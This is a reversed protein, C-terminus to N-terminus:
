ESFTVRRPPGRRLQPVAVVHHLFYRMVEVLEAGLIQAWKLLDAPVEQQALLFRGPQVYARLSEM